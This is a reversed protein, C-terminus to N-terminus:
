KKDRYGIIKAPVGGVISNEPFQKTIVANAAVVCGNAISAGDLFVVGSGIWCNDGVIKGKHNVGQDKILTDMDEYNHNESHFRIFQGAVVDNGIKIGGAAGFFCDNGFTTDNGIMVGKGVYKLSGTCEIRTGRGLIVRDGLRVGDRSLADVYVNDHLKCQNGMHLYRKELTKVRKGVFVSNSINHRGFSFIKGRIMMWGYKWCMRLIYGTSIKDDIKFDKKGAIVLLKDILKM